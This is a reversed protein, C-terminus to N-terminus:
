CSRSDGPVGTSFNRSFGRDPVSGKGHLPRLPFPLTAGSINSDESKHNQQRESLKHHAGVYKDDRFGRPVGASQKVIVSVGLKALADSHRPTIAAGGEWSCFQMDIAIAGVLRFGVLVPIERAAPQPRGM